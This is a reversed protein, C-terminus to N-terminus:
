LSNHVSFHCKKGNKVLTTTLLLWAYEKRIIPIICKYFINSETIISRNWKKVALCPVQTCLSLRPGKSKHTVADINCTQLNLVLFMEKIKTTGSQTIYKLLLLCILARMVNFILYSTVKIVYKGVTQLTTTDIVLRDPNIKPPDYPRVINNRMIKNMHFCKSSCTVLM